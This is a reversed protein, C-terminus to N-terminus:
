LMAPELRNLDRPWCVGTRSITVTEPDEKSWLIQWVTFCKEVDKRNKVITNLASLAIGLRAALTVCAEKSADVQAVIDMKEQISFAKRNKPESM